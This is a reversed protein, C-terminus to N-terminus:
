WLPDIKSLNKAERTREKKRENRPKGERDAAKEFAFSL